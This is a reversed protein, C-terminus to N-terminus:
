LDEGATAFRAPKGNVTISRVQGRAFDLNFGTLPSTARADIRTVTQLPKTNDGTYDFAIDYALVDYGPNGLRPFLGDGIGRPAPAPVGAAVLTAMAAAVLAARRQPSRLM